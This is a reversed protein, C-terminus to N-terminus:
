EGDDDEPKKLTRMLYNMSRRMDFFLGTIDKDNEAITLLDINDAILANGTVELDLVTAILYEHAVYIVHFPTEETMGDGTSMIADVIMYIKSIVEERKDIQQMVEYAHILMSYVNVDFPYKEIHTNAFEIVRLYDNNSHYPKEMITNLSDLEDSVIIATYEDQYSFGYYLNRVEELTMTTDSNKFRKYLDDFYLGSTSDNVAKEIAEYDPSEFPMDDQAILFISQILISLLIVKKM